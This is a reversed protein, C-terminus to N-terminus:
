MYIGHNYNICYINYSRDNQDGKQLLTKPVEFYFDIDSEHSTPFEYWVSHVRYKIKEIPLGMNLGDAESIKDIYFHHCLEKKFSNNINENM